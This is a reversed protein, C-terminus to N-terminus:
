GRVKVMAPRIVKGRYTYGRRLEETVTNEPLEGTEEKMVAEHYEPNFQEGVAPIAEIGERALVDQLQRSIMEVGALLKECDDNKVALAREFNDIVPLLAMILQENAYKLLDERERAVRKRYNEFDAQLRVLRNFYDEARSKEAALMKMLSERDDEGPAEGPAAGSPGDDGGPSEGPQIEADEAM